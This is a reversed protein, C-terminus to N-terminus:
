NYRFRHCCRDNGIVIYATIQKDISDDGPIQEIMYLYIFLNIDYYFLLCIILNIINAFIYIYLLFIRHSNFYNRVLTKNNTNKTTKILHHRAKTSRM